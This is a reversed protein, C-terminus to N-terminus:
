TVDIGNGAVFRVVTQERAVIEFSSSLFARERTESTSIIACNRLHSTPTRTPWIKRERSLTPADVVKFEIPSIAFRLLRDSSTERASVGRAGLGADRSVSVSRPSRTLLELSQESRSRREEQEIGM